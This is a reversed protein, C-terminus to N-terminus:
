SNSGTEAVGRDAAIGQSGSRKSQTATLRGDSVAEVFDAAFDLRMQLQSEAATRQTDPTPVNIGADAPIPTQESSAAEEDGPEAHPVVTM